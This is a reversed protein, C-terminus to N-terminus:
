GSDVKNRSFTAFCKNSNMVYTEVYDIVEARNGLEKAVAAIRTQMAEPLRRLAKDASAKFVVTFEAM